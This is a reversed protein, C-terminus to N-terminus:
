SIVAKETLCTMEFNSGFQLGLLGHFEFVLIATVKKNGPIKEDFLFCKTWDM